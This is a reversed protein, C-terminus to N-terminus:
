EPIEEIFAPIDESVRVVRNDGLKVVYFGSNETIGNPPAYTIDEVVSATAEFYRTNGHEGGYPEKGITFCTNDYPLGSRWSLIKSQRLRM